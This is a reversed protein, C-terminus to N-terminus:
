YSVNFFNLLEKKLRGKDSMQNIYKEGKKNQPKNTMIADRCMFVFENDEDTHEGNNQSLIQVL